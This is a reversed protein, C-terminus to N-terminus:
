ERKTTSALNSRHERYERKVDISRIPLNGLLVGSVSLAVIRDSTIGSVAEKYAGIGYRMAKRMSDFAGVFFSDYAGLLSAKVLYRSVLPNYSDSTFLRSSNIRLNTNESMSMYKILVAMIAVEKRMPMVTTFRTIYGTKLLEKFSYLLTKYNIRMRKAMETLPIRSNDNLLVLMDKYRGPLRSHTITRSTLPFFGFRKFTVESTDWRLEGRKTLARRMARDWSAYESKSYANAYVLLDYKGRTSCVIQPIYYRSLEDMVAKIGTGRGLKIGIIHPSRLGIRSQNLELTYKLGFEKEITRLRRETEKRHISLAGAIDTIGSRSNECLMRMIRNTLPSYRANFESEDESV